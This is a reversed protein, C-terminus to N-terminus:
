GMESINIRWKNVLSTLSVKNRTESYGAENKKRLIKYKYAHFFVNTKLSYFDSSIKRKMLITHM